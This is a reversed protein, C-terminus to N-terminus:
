LKLLQFEDESVVNQPILACNLLIQPKFIQQLMSSTLWREDRNLYIYTFM